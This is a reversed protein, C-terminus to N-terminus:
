VAATAVCSYAAGLFFANLLLPVASRILALWAVALILAVLGGFLIERAHLEDLLWGALPMAPLWALYFLHVFWESRRDPLNLRDKLSKRIGDVLTPILGILLGSVLTAAVLITLTM